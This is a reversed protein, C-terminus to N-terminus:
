LRDLYSQWQQLFLDVSRRLQADATRARDKASEFAESAEDRASGALDRATAARDVESLRQRIQVIHERRRQCATRLELHVRDLTETTRQSLEVFPSLPAVSSAHEAAVGLAVALREAAEAERTLGTLSRELEGQRSKTAAQERRHREEAEAHRSAAENADRARERVAHQAEHLRRADRMVPDQRLEELAARDRALKRELEAYREGHAAVAREATAHESRADSLARSANDFETQAQRLVRAQRRAQVRAYIRYRRGFQAVADRLAEHARLADHYEDLQTMAEAVDELTTQPLPSLAETLATSLNQEDPRRSLQPHRLTILTDMLARYREEGMHFLREDVARRYEQATPFIHGRNGLHEALRERGLVVREPTILWLERGIRQETIFHWADPRPRGAVASLGCGLTLYQAEGEENRRGFEIWAYGTRREHRGMLLNWDMRKARDGDPEVRSPSLHADLLFPLTLSLVKSKGTGNNGRLLLHGDRFWFEECDYHYLEVLGVRLPQWRALAPEPLPPLQLPATM